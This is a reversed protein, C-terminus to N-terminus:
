QEIRASKREIRLANYEGGYVYLQAVLYFYLLVAIVSALSGYVPRASAVQRALLASGVVKSLTWGMGSALAGPWLDRWPPGEGAALIRYASIFLLTDVLLSLATGGIGMLFQRPGTLDLGALAGAAGGLVALLGLWVVTALGRLKKEVLNAEDELEFIRTTAVKASAVVRLGSLILGLFGLVGTATRQQVLAAINDGLVARIGPIARTMAATLRSQLQPNDLVFGAISLGILLLPFLSLFGFYAIAAAFQGAAHEGHREQLIMATGVVPTEQLREKLERLRRQMTRVLRSAKRSLDSRARVIRPSM